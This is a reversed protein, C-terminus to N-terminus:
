MIVPTQTRRKTQMWAVQSAARPSISPSSHPPAAVSVGRDGQSTTKKQEEEAAPPQEEKESSSSVTLPSIGIWGKANLENSDSDEEQSMWGGMMMLRMGEDEEESRSGSMGEDEQDPEYEKLASCISLIKKTRPPPTPTTPRPTADVLSESAAPSRAEPRATGSHADGDGERLEIGEEESEIGDDSLDEDNKPLLIERPSVPQLVALPRWRDLPLPGCHIQSELFLNSM